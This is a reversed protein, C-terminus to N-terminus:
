LGMLLVPSLTKKQIDSLVNAATVANATANNAVEPATDLAVYANGATAYTANLSAYQTQTVFAAATASDVAPSLDALDVTGTGTPLVIYYTRGGSFIEEVQYAFPQPSVDSDNTTPLVISFAGSVLTETIARNILIQNQDTDIVITIPTFRISGDVENGNIDVFSGTLTCTELDPTLAV